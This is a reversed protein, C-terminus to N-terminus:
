HVMAIDASVNNWSYVYNCTGANEICGVSNDTIYGHLHCAFTLSVTVPMDLLVFSLLVDKFQTSAFNLLWLQLLGVM